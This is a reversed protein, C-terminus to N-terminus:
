NQGLRGSRKRYETPSMGYYKRFASSFHGQSSYGLEEAIANLSREHDSLLIAAASMRAETKKEQFSKGYYKLLFRQAQRSSVNLRTALDHLSLTSYEYLFYEEMIVSKADALNSKAFATRSPQRQRYNRVVYILLQSLLLTVQQQYGIYRKELEDFLQEMLRGIGQTDQGFWFPKELFIDMVCSEKQPRTSSDVKLYICYEQMPDAPMPIQAHEIHPGTIYLTGPTIDYYLKGSTQEQRGYAGEVGGLRGYGASIYHIEYCGNGHSHSPISRTFREFVINLARVPIDDMTFHIDMNTYLTRM